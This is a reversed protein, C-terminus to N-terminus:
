QQQKLCAVKVVQLLIIVMKRHIDMMVKCYIVKGTIVICILMIKNMEIMELVWELYVLLIHIM